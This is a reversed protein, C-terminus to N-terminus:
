SPLLTLGRGQTAARADEYAEDAALWRAEAETRARLLGGRERALVQARAPDRQYLAGEALDRDIADIRKSM